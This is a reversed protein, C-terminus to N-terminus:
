RMLRCFESKYHDVNEQPINDVTFIHKEWNNKKIHMVKLSTRVFYIYLKMTELVTQVNWTGINMMQKRNRGKRKHKTNISVRRRNRTVATLSMAMTMTVILRRSSGERIDKLNLNEGPTRTFGSGNGKRKLLSAM